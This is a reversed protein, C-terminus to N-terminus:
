NGAASTGAIWGSAWAFFLNYGGCKGDIDIIEGALYLNEAIRSYMQAPDIEATDVGGCSVQAAHMDGTGNVPLRIDSVADLLLSAAKKMDTKPPRANPDIGAYRLLADAFHDPFLGILAEYPTVADDSFRRRLEASIEEDTLDPVLHIHLAAKKGDALARSAFRSVNFVPIGSFGAKTIQIQGTDSCAIRGDTEVSVTASLRTGDAKRFPSNQIILNTLAPVPPIIRHGLARCLDLGRGDSGTKPAATGGTTLIVADSFLSDELSGDTKKETYNVRWGSDERSLGTVETSTLIRVGRQRLGRGLVEAVARAQESYPYLYGNRNVPTIGLRRFLDVCDGPSFRELVAPLFADDLQRHYDATSVIDHCYNCRGNGTALLKKGTSENKEILTVEASDQEAAAIAAICGAAGGGIVTIKKKATQSPTKMRVLM